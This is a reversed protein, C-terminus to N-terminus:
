VAHMNWFSQTPVRYSILFPAMHRIIWQFREPTKIVKLVKEARREFTCHVYRKVNEVGRWRGAMFFLEKANVDAYVRVFEKEEALSIVREDGPALGFSGRLMYEEENGM